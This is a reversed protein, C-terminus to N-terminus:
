FQPQRLFKHGEKAFWRNYDDMAVANEAQWKAWGAERSQDNIMTSRARHAADSEIATDIEDAKRGTADM